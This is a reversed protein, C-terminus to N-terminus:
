LKSTFSYLLSYYANLNLSQSKLNSTLSNEIYKSHHMISISIEDYCRKKTTSTEKVMEHENIYVFYETGSALLTQLVSLLVFVLGSFSRM